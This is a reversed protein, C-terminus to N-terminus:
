DVYGLRKLISGAEELVIEEVAKSSYNKWDGVVGKRYFKQPDESSFGPSTKVPGSDLPLAKNPELGLFRYCDDREAKVSAHLKEYHVIKVEYDPFCEAFGNNKAELVQGIHKVWEQTTDRVWDLDDLLQGPHDKFYQLNGGYEEQKKSMVPFRNLVYRRNVRLLHYARSVTVDRVDRVIYLCKSKKIVPPYAVGPTKDGLYKIRRFSCKSSAHKIMLKAIMSEFDTDLHGQMYPGNLVSWGAIKLIHERAEALHTFGWEGSSFVAPHLNMLNSLWNTGSKPFGRISFFSPQGLGFNFARNFGYIHDKINKLIM